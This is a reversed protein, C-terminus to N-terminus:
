LDIEQAGIVLRNGRKVGIALVFVVRDQPNTRYFVRFRNDPGFRLEWADDWLSRRRLPKRNRSEVDPEHFLQEEIVGRILSHYKREIVSLQDMVEPDYVAEFPRKAM